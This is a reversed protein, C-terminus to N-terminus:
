FATHSGLASSFTHTLPDTILLILTCSEGLCFTPPPPPIPPLPAGQKEIGTGEELGQPREAERVVRRSACEVPGQCGALESGAEGELIEEWGRCDRRRGRGVKQRDGQGIVEKGAEWGEWRM